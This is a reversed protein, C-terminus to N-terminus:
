TLITHQYVNCSGIGPDTACLMSNVINVIGSYSTACQDNSVIETTAQQLASPLSGETNQPSFYDGNLMFHENYFECFEENNIYSFVDIGMWRHQCKPRRIPWQFWVTALLRSIHDVYLDRTLGADFCRRWKGIFCSDYYSAMLNFSNVTSIFPLILPQIAIKSVKKM